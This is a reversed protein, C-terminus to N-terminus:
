IRNNGGSFDSQSDFKVSINNIKLYAEWDLAANTLSKRIRWLAQRLYNRANTDTSDPWLLGALKERRHVTGARLAIYALLSQAPRSRLEIPQADAQLHFQGLLTIKLTM